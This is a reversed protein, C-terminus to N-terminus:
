VPETLNIHCVQMQRNSCFLNGQWRTDAVYVDPKGLITLDSWTPQTFNYDPHSRLSLFNTNLAFFYGTSINKDSTIVAGKHRVNQWGAELTAKDNATYMQQPQMTREYADLLLKTTVCFDPLVGAYDGM